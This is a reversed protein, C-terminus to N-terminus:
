TLEYGVKVKFNDFTITYRVENQAWLNALTSRFMGELNARQEYAAKYAADIEAWEAWTFPTSLPANSYRTLDQNLLEIDVLCDQLRNEMEQAYDRLHDPHSEYYERDPSMKTTFSM